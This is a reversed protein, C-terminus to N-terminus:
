VSATLLEQGCLAKIQLSYMLKTSLTMEEQWIKYRRQEIIMFLHVSIFMYYPRWTKDAFSGFPNIRIRNLSFDVFVQSFFPVTGIKLGTQRRYENHQFWLEDIEEFSSGTVCFLHEAFHLIDQFAWVTNKYKKRHPYNIFFNLPFSKSETCHCRNHAATTFTCTVTTQSKVCHLRM